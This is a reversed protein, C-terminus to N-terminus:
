RRSSPSSSHMLSAVVYGVLAAILIAILPRANIEDKLVAAGSEVSERANHVAREASKAADGFADQAQGFVNQAVGAAQRARGSVETEHDGTARGVAAEAQGAVDKFKGVIQDPEM